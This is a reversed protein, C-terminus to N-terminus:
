NKESVKRTNEKSKKMFITTKDHKRNSKKNYGRKKLLFQRKKM